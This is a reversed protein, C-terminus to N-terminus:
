DDDSDEDRLIEDENFGRKSAKVYYGSGQDSVFSFEDDNDSFRGTVTLDRAARCFVDLFEDTDFEEIEIAYDDNSYTFYLEESGETNFGDCLVIYDNEFEFFDDLEGSRLFAIMKKLDSKKGQLTIDFYLEEYLTM